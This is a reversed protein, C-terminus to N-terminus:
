HAETSDLSITVPVQILFVHLTTEEVQQSHDQIFPQAKDFRLKQDRAPTKHSSVPSYNSPRLCIFACLATKTIGPAYYITLLLGSVINNHAKLCLRPLQGPHSDERVTTNILSTVESHGPFIVQYHVMAEPPELLLIEWRSLIECTHNKFWSIPSCEQAGWCLQRVGLFKSVDSWWTVSGM